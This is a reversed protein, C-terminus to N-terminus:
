ESGLRQLYAERAARCEPDLFAALLSDADSRIRGLGVMQAGIADVERKTAMVPGIDRVLREVGGWGLAIGLDVEPISFAAEQAAVRLDCAAALVVGGGICWGQIRAITLASMGEVAAAM